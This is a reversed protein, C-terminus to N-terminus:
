YKTYQRPNKHLIGSFQVALRVTSNQATSGLCVTQRLSLTGATYGGTLQVTVRRGAIPKASETVRLTVPCACSAAPRRTATYSVTIHKCKLKDIV